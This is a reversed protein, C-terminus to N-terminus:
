KMAKKAMKKVIERAKDVGMDPENDPEHGKFVLKDGEVHFLDKLDTEGLNKLKDATMASGQQNALKLFADVSIQKKSATDNARGLLFEALAAIKEVEAESSEIENIRM